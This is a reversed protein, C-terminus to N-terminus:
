NSTAVRAADKRALPVADELDVILANAAGASAKAIM